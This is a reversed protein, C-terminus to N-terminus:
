NKEANKLVGELKRKWLEFNIGELRSVVERAFKDQGKSTREQANPGTDVFSVRQGSEDSKDSIFINESYRPDSLLGGIMARFSQNSEMFRRFDPTPRKTERAEKLVALAGDIFELLERMVEPDRYLEEDPIKDVSRGDILRQVRFLQGKEPSDKTMKARFFLTDPVFRGVPSSKLFEYFKKDAVAEEQTGFAERKVQKLAIMRELGEPNQAAVKWLASDKHVPGKRSEGVRLPLANEEPLRDGSPVMEPKMTEIIVWQSDNDM